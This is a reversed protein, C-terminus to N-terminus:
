QTSAADADTGTTTPTATDGSPTSEAAPTTDDGASTTTASPLSDGLDTSSAAGAAAGTSLRDGKNNAWYGALACAVIWIGAVVITIRTFIDGAKAGFAVEMVPASDTFIRARFEGIEATVRDALKQMRARMLKHYDRGLAYRSIYASARDGMTEWADRAGPPLYNMRAAIVRLTGPVLQAPRSRKTGHRAMYEM